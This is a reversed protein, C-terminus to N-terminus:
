LAAAHRLLAEGIVEGLRVPVANGILRGLHSFRIPADAPVFRYDRPFTQLMAAERLSIARDQEPHGFRGNGYGFCQTTVTPSPQKWHMRGYVSPYTAGSGRRHCDAQLEVPWDRWTGGPVSARIRRLNVESLRPSRHLPDDPDREGAAIAPMKAIADAVTVRDSHTPRLELGEGHRSALLVLRKRTQPVGYEGCDVVRWWVKYGKLSKMFLEFVEHQTLQPVNEMTVFDPKIARVLSGFKLLLPWQDEYKKGRGSQSYTSFPQCPACGALLRFRAEKAFLGEIEKPTITAVDAGVFAAANNAEFSFACSAEIDVGASVSVGARELGHTLGGVGCFLDVASISVNNM